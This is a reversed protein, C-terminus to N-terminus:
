SFMLKKSSFKIKLDPWTNIEFQVILDEEQKEKTLKGTEGANIMTAISETSSSM